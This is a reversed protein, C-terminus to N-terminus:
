VRELASRDASSPVSFSNLAVHEVLLDVIATHGRSRSDDLPSKGSNNSCIVEAGAGLLLKIVTEHGEWCAHHLPYDGVKNQCDVVAGAALILRAIAEDEWWCAIHLPLNGYIDACCINAGRDLLLSVLNVHENTCAFHLPSKGYEDQANVDAGSDLIFQVIKECGYSRYLCAIHLPTRGFQDRIDVKAGADILLQPIVTHGFSHHLCAAHLPSQRSPNLYNPDAGAELLFRVSAKKEMAVMTFLISQGRITDWHNVTAGAELLLKATAFKEYKCARQLASEGAVQFNADVGGTLLLKMKFVPERYTGITKLLAFGGLDTHQQVDNCYDLLMKVFDDHGGELALHLADQRWYNQSDISAGAQLLVKGIVNQGSRAAVHLPSEGDTSITNTPENKDLLFQVIRLSGCYTAEHLPATGLGMRVFSGAEKKSLLGEVITDDGDQVAYKLAYAQQIKSTSKYTYHQLLLKVVSEHGLIDARYLPEYRKLDQQVTPRRNLLLQVISTHGGCAAFYLPMLGSPNPDVTANHDLLLKVITEHGRLAAIMIPTIDNSKHADVISTEHVLTSAATELGFYAALHLGTTSQTKGTRFAFINSDSACSKYIAPWILKVHTPQRLLRMTEHFTTPARGAHHGWNLAAYEYFRSAAHQTHRGLQPHLIARSAYCSLYTICVNAIMAEADPFWREHNREFYEQTTYHVLRIVNTGQDITVLGACVSVIDDVDPCNDSDFEHEGIEVGLAEQLELTTLRRRAHVIWALIEHALEVQDAVQNGIREMVISYAADYAETGTDFAQLSKRIAAISRKGVL